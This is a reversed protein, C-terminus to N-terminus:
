HRGLLGGICWNIDDNIVDFLYKNTMPTRAALDLHCRVLGFSVTREFYQSVHRTDTVNRCLMRSVTMSQCLMQWLKEIEEDVCLWPLSADIWAVVAQM